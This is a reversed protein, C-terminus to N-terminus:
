ALLSARDRTAELMTDPTPVAGSCLRCHGWTTSHSFSSCRPDALCLAKCDAPRAAVGDATSSAVLRAGKVAPNCCDAAEHVLVFPSMTENRRTQQSLHESSLKIRVVVSMGRSALKWPRPRTEGSGTVRSPAHLFQSASRNFVVSVNAIRTSPAAAPAADPEMWSKLQPRQAAVDQTFLWSSSASRAAVGTFGSPCQCDHISVAKDLSSTAWPASAAWSWPCSKCATSGAQDEYTGGACSTCAHRRGVVELELIEMCVAAPQVLFLYLASANCSMDLLVHGVGVVQVAPPTGSATSPVVACLVSDQMSTSNGVRVQAGGLAAVGQPRLHIRLSRTYVGSQDHAIANGTLRLRLWSQAQCVGNAPRVVWSTNYKGDLARRLHYLSAADM